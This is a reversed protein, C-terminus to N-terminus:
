TQKVCLVVMVTARMVIRQQTVGGLKLSTDWVQLPCECYSVISSTDKHHPDYTM